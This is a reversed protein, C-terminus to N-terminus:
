VSYDAGFAPFLRLYRKFGSHSPWYIATIAIVLDAGAFLRTDYLFLRVVKARKIM